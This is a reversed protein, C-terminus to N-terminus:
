TLLLLRCDSDAVIAGIGSRTVTTASSLGVLFVLKQWQALEIDTSIEAEISARQCVKVFSSLSATENGDKEGFQLRAFSGHHRIVGPREIFELFIPSV